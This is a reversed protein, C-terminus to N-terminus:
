PLSTRLCLLRVGPLLKPPQKPPARLSWFVRDRVRPLSTCCLKNDKLICITTIANIVKMFSQLCKQFTIKWLTERIIRSLTELVKTHILKDPLMSFVCQSEPQLSLCLSFYLFSLFNTDNMM